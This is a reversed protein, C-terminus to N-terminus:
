AAVLTECISGAADTVLTIIEATTAAKTEQDRILTCAAGKIMRIRIPVAKPTKRQPGIQSKESKESNKAPMKEEEELKNFAQNAAQQPGRDSPHQL